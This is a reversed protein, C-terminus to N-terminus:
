ATKGRSKYLYWVGCAVGGGIIAAAADLLSVDRLPVISQHLEDLGGYLLVVALTLGLQLQPRWDVTHDLARILFLGLAGFELAHALKDAHPFLRVDLQSGPLSSLTFIVAAVLVVPAWYRLLRPM